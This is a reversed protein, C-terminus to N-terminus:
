KAKRVRGSDKEKEQTDAQVIKRLLALEKEQARLMATQNVNIQHIATLTEHDAKAKADQMASIINQSAGLLPLALLQIVTQALFTVWSVVSFPQQALFYAEIGDLLVCFWFFWMSSLVTASRAAIMANFRGVRHAGHLRLHHDESKVLRPKHDLHEQM